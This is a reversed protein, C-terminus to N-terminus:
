MAAVLKGDGAGVELVRSGPKLSSLFRMRDREALGRLPAVLRSAIGQPRNYTGGEYMAAPVVANGVTAASGCDPCCELEFEAHGALQPDSASAARWPVLPGRGCAPCPRGGAANM